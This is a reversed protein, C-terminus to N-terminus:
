DDHPNFPVADPAIPTSWAALADTAWPPHPALSDSYLFRVGEEWLKAATAQSDITNIAPAIGAARVQAVFKPSWHTMDFTLVKIGHAAAFRVTRAAITASTGLRYMTFIVNKFPYVSQVTGLMSENYIQVIIRKSLEDKDPGLAAILQKFEARVHPADSYKTDTVIYMDPHTRMLGAIAGMDLPTYKGFVKTALFESRSPVRSPVPEGLDQFLASSWDHRAALYGDRTPILDVEFIRYGKDYNQQFAELTNTYTYLASGGASTVTLGGM